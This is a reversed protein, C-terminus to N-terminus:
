ISMTSVSVSSHFLTVHPPPFTPFLNLHLLKISESRSSGQFHSPPYVPLCLLWWLHSADQFIQLTSSISGRGVPVFGLFDCWQDGPPSTYFSSASLWWRRQSSSFPGDDILGVNSRNGLCCQPFEQSFPHFVYPSERACLYWRLSFQVSGQTLNQTHNPGHPWRRCHTAQPTNQWACKLQYM